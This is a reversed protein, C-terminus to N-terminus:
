LMNMWQQLLFKTPTHRLPFHWKKKHVYESVTEHFVLGKTFIAERYAGVGEFNLEAKIPRPFGLLRTLWGKDQQENIETVRTINNWIKDAPAQIDIYTTAEYTGPISGIANEIPSAFFPLLALAPMYIKNNQKKMKLYGGLLGGISAAILFLPLAMLWCAWGELSILLTIILFIFVPIWPAFIRYSRKKAKEIDSFYVTLAGIITPLCFLFSISMVSFLNRWTSVGFFLRLIIAYIIPIVIATFFSKLRQSNM